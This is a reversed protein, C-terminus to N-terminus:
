FRWCGPTPWTPAPRQVPLPLSHAGAGTQGAKAAAISIPPSRLTTAGLKVGACPTFLM